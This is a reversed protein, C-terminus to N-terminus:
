HSVLVELSRSKSGRVSLCPMVFAKPVQEKLAFMVAVRLTRASNLIMNMLFLKWTSYGKLTQMLARVLSMFLFM